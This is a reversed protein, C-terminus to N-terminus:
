RAQCCALPKVQACALQSTFVGQANLNTGTDITGNVWSTGGSSCSNQTRAGTSSRNSDIWAGSAPPLSMPNARDFDAVTCFSSGPFELACKANAGVHGGLNGSYTAATYGRFVVPTPVHCCALPKVQTCALQATFVGQANLNTGTDLTSFWASGGM